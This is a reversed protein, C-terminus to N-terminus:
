QVMATAVGGSVQLSTLLYDENHARSITPIGIVLWRPPTIVPLPMVQSEGQANVVASSSPGSGSGSGSGRTTGSGSGSGSSSGSSSSGARSGHSDVLGMWSSGFSRGSVGVGVSVGVRGDAGDGQPAAQQCRQLDKIVLHKEAVCRAVKDEEAGVVRHLQHVEAQAGIQETSLRAADRKMDASLTINSQM